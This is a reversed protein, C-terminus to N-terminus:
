RKWRYHRTSRCSATTVSPRSYRPDGSCYEYRSDYPSRNFAQDAREGFLRVRDNM